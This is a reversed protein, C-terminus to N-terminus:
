FQHTSGHQHTRRKSSHAYRGAKQVGSLKYYYELPVYYNRRNRNISDYRALVSQIDLGTRHHKLVLRYLPKAQEPGAFVETLKALRWLYYTDYAFNLIGFNSVYNQLRPYLEKWKRERDLKEIKKLEKLNRYLPIRNINKFQLDVVEIIVSDSKLEVKKSKGGQKKKKFLQGNATLTCCLLLILMFWRPRKM